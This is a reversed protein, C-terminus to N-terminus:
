NEQGQSMIANIVTNHLYDIFIKCRARAGQDLIQALMSNKM